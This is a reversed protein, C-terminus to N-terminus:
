PTSPMRAPRSRAWKRLHARVHQGIMTQTGFQRLLFGALSRRVTNLLGPDTEVGPRTGLALARRREQSESLKRTGPLLRPDTRALRTGGTQDGNWSSDPDRRLRAPRRAVTLSQLRWSDCQEVDMVAM